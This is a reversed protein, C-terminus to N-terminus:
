HFRKGYRRKRYTHIIEDIEEQTLEGYKAIREDVKRWVAEMTRRVDPVKLKKMMIVDRYGYVLLKAKPTIGLNRRIAQPIM